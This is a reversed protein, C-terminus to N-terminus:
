PEGFEDSPNPKVYSTGWDQDYIGMKVYRHFSSWPWDSVDKVLGHKVPNYHIYDIHNHMDQEDRITHEWFRRQWITAEQKNIHSENRDRGKEVNRLYMRTFIRKIERIRMSYNWDGEPLSIIAHLHDPLICIAVTTFPYRNSIREWAHQLINRAMPHDFIPQREYTVLTVFYTGGEIYVRRYEPM